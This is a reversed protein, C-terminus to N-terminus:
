STCVNFYGSSCCRVYVLLLIDFERIDSTKILVPSSKNGVGAINLSAVEFVYLSNQELEKITISNTDTTEERTENIFVVYTDATPSASWKLNLHTLGAIGSRKINTPPEAKM